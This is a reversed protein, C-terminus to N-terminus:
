IMMTMNRTRSSHGIHSILDKSHLYIIYAHISHACVHLGFGYFSVLKILCFSNKFMRLRNLCYLICQLVEFFNSKFCGLRVKNM